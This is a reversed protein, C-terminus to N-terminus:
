LVRVGNVYVPKAEVGMGCLMMAVDKKSANIPTKPPVVHLGSFYGNTFKDLLIADRRDKASVKGADCFFDHIGVNQAGRMNAFGLVSVDILKANDGFLFITPKDLNEKAFSKNEPITVVYYDGKDQVWQHKADPTLVNLLPEAYTTVATAGVLASGIKLFTRRFM